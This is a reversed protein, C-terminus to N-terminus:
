EISHDPESETFQVNLWESRFLLDRLDKRHLLQLTYTAKGQFFISCREWDLWNRGGSIKLGAALVKFVCAYALNKISSAVAAYKAPPRDIFGTAMKAAGHDRFRKKLHQWTGNQEVTQIHWVIATPVWAIQVGSKHLERQFGVEGDGVRASGVSDPHFGGAEFLVRKRVSFNAGFIDECPLLKRCEDGFDRSGNYAEYPLLWDPPTHDWKVVIKGGACGVDYHEYVKLLEELWRKDCIADDDTYALITAKAAKAGANRAYHLGIQRVAIYRIRCPTLQAFENAVAKTINTPNNDVIIIEYDDHDLTQQTLSDLCNHLAEARNYTPVIASIRVM